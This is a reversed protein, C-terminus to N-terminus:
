KFKGIVPKLPPVLQFIGAAILFALSAKKSELAKETAKKLDEIQEQISIETM